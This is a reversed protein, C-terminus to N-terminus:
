RKDFITKVIGKDILTEFIPKLIIIIIPGILMGMIGMVKYGTYMAILTFIPHIGIQNSVVKPELLQRVITIIVFLIFLALALNIDGQMASIVAWPLLITGSGVIPLADAFAILLAMLLPYGVNLGFIDFAFLGILVLVFNIVILIVEAKLYGGLLGIIKKVNKSFKKVWDKPFHHEIQDLIYLRDACIFYTALITVVAYVGVTGISSIKSILVTLFETIWKSITELLNSTSNKFIQEVEGSMKIEDFNLKDIYDTIYNYGEDIYYNLSSLLSSGEDLLIAIGWILLGIIIIFVVILVIIASAKRTFNTKNHVKTIIPEVIVSIIFAILFPMYFVAMKFAFYIGIITIILTLLRKTVKKLYGVDVVM